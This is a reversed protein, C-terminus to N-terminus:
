RQTLIDMVYKHVLQGSYLFQPEHMARTATEKVNETDQPNRERYRWLRKRLAEGQGDTLEYYSVADPVAVWGALPERAREEQHGNTKDAGTASGGVNGSGTEGPKSASM